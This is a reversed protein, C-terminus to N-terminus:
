DRPPMVGSTVIALKSVFHLAVHERARRESVALMRADCVECRWLPKGGQIGRHLIPTRFLLWPEDEFRRRTRMFTSPSLGSERAAAVDSSGRYLAWMVVLDRDMATIRVSTRKVYKGWIGKKGQHARLNNLVENAQEKLGPM